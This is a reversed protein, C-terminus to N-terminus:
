LCPFQPKWVNRSPRLLWFSASNPNSGLDVSGVVRTVGTQSCLCLHKLRPPPPPSIGESSWGQGRDESGRSGATISAQSTLHLLVTSPSCSRQSEGPKHIVSFQMKHFFPFALVRRECWWCLCHAKKHPSNEVFVSRHEPELLVSTDAAPPGARSLRPGAEVCGTWNSDAGPCCSGRDCTM